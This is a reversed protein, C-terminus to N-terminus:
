HLGMFELMERNVKHVDYTAEAVARAERGMRVVDGPHNVFHLIKEYLMDVNKPEVLFGNCSEQVTERCGPTDTTIIARGMAMAELITRPTGERYYTPLVFVSCDRIYPRVDDVGGHYIIVGEDQWSLLKELTLSGPNEDVGGVLALRVEPHSQKNPTFPHVELEGFRRAFAIHQEVSIAQERFFLVKREVLLDSLWDITAQDHEQGVDIGLVETGICPSLHHLTIGPEPLASAEAM